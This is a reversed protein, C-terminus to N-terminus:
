NNTQESDGALPEAVSGADTASILHRLSYPIRELRTMENFSVIDGQARAATGMTSSGLWDYSLQRESDRGPLCWWPRLSNVIPVHSGSLRVALKWLM